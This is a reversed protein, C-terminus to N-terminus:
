LSKQMQKMAIMRIMEMVNLRHPCSAFCAGCEICDLSSDLTGDSDRSDDQIFSSIVLPIQINAPCVSSCINCEACDISKVSRWMEDQKQEMM